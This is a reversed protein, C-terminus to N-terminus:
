RQPRSALAVAAALSVLAFVALIALSVAPTAIAVAGTGLATHLAAVSYSVPDIRMIFALWAPSTELPFVAGALLWMPILVLNMIAHFGQTSDLAWAICIGLATLGLSILLLAATAILWGEASPSLGALPALALFALGQIFGVTSAGLLKGLVVSLRSVPSVLVAQLFGERRDEILSITAFVSTFLVILVVTGSFLFKSVGPGLGSGILLWFVIPPAIAGIVRARDRFFRTIDRRWLTYIALGNM